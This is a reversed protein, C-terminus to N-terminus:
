IRRTLNDIKEHAYVLCNSLKKQSLTCLLCSNFPISIIIYISLFLIIIYKEKFNSFNRFYKNLKKRFHWLYNWINHHFFSNRHTTEYFQLNIDVINSFGNWSFNYIDQQPLLNYGFFLFFFISFFLYPM